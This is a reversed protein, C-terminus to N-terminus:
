GLVAQFRDNDRVFRHNDWSLLEAFDVYILSKGVILCEM